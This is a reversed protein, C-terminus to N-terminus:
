TDKDTHTEADALNLTDSSGGRTSDEKGEMIKGWHLLSLSDVFTNSHCLYGEVFPATSTSGVQSLIDGGLIDVTESM